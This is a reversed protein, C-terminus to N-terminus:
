KSKQYKEYKLAVCRKHSKKKPNAHAFLCIKGGNEVAGGAFNKLVKGFDYVM